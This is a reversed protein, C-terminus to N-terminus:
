RPARQFYRMGKSLANVVKRSAFKVHICDIANSKELGANFVHKHNGPARSVHSEEGFVHRVHGVSM